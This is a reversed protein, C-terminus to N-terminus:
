PRGGDLMRDKIRKAVHAYLLEKGVTGEDLNKDTGTLTTTASVVLEIINAVNVVTEAEAAGFVTVPLQEFESM